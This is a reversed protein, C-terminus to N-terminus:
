AEAARLRKEVFWLFISGGMAVIFFILILAMMQSYQGLNYSHMILKGMGAKSAFLEAIIVNVLTLGFSLRVGALLSLIVAPVYIRYFAQWPSIRLTRGIKVYVPKINRIGVMVNILVPFIGGIFGMAIVSSANIGLLLLLVPYIIIKPISATIVILPSLVAYWYKSRGLLSGLVAGMSVALIFSIICEQTTVKAAADFRSQSVLGGLAELTKWPSPIVFVWMSALQWVIVAGIAVLLWGTGTLLTHPAKKIM